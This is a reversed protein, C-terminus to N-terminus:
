IARAMTKNPHSNTIPFITVFDEWDDIGNESEGYDCTQNITDVLFLSHEKENYIYVDLNPDLLQLREILEKVKM